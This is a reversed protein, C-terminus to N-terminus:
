NMQNLGIVRTLGNAAIYKVKSTHNSAGYTWYCKSADQRPPSNKNNPTKRPTCRKPVAAKRQKTDDFLEKLLKLIELQVSVTSMANAQHQQLTKKRSSASDTSASAFSLINQLIALLKFDRSIM